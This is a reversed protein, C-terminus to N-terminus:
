ISETEKIRNSTGAIYSYTLGRENIAMMIVKAEMNFVSDWIDDALQIDLM